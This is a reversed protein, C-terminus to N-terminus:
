VNKREKSLLFDAYELVQQKGSISLSKYISMLEKEGYQIEYEVQEEEEVGSLWDASVNLADALILLARLKPETTGALYRSINSESIGSKRSLEAATIDRKHMTELLRVGFLTM